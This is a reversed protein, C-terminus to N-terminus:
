IREWSHVSADDNMLDLREIVEEMYEASSRNRHAEGRRSSWEIFRTVGESLEDSPHRNLFASVFADIEEAALWDTKVRELLEARKQRLTEVRKQEEYRLEALRREEERRADEKRRAKAAAACTAAGSLIKPLM